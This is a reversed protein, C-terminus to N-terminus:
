TYYKNQWRELQAAMTEFQADDLDTHPRPVGDGSKSHPEDSSSSRCTLIDPHTTRCPVGQQRRAVRIATHAPAIAAHRVASSCLPAAAIRLMQDANNFLM